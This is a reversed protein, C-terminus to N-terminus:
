FSKLFDHLRDERDLKGLWDVTGVICKKEGELVLIAEEVVEEIEKGTVDIECVKGHGCASM